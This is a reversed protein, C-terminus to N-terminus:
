NLTVNIFKKYCIGNNAYVLCITCSWETACVCLCMIYQTSRGDPTVVVVVITSWLVAISIITIIFLVVYLTICITFKRHNNSSKSSSCNWKSWRGTCVISTKYKSKSHGNSAASHIREICLKNGSLPRYCIESPLLIFIHFIKPISNNVHKSSHERITLIFWHRFQTYLRCVVLALHFNFSYVNWKRHFQTFKMRDNENRGSEFKIRGSRSQISFQKFLICMAVSIYKPINLNLYPLLNMCSTTLNSNIASLM